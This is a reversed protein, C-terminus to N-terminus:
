KNWTKLAEQVRTKVLGIEEATMGSQMSLERTKLYMKLSEYQGTELLGQAMNNEFMASELRETLEKGQMKLVGKKTIKKSNYCVTVM